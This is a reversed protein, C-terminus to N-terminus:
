SPLADGCGDCLPGAVRSTAAWCADCVPGTTPRDLVRGCSACETAILVALLADALEIMAPMLSRAGPTQDRIGIRNLQRGGGAGPVRATRRQGVAARARLLRPVRPQLRTRRLQFLGAPGM